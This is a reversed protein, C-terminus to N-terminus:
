RPSSYSASGSGLGSYGQSIFLQDSIHTYPAVQAM